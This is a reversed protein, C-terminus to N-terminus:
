KRSKKLSRIRGAIGLVKGRVPRMIGWLYVYLLYGRHDCSFWKGKRCIKVVRAIVANTSVDKELKSQADGCLSMQRDYLKIIRHLVYQGNERRYLVIDGNKLSGEQCHELVVQDRRHMWLPMMSTGTVQLTVTQGQELLSNLIPSLEELSLIVTREEMM